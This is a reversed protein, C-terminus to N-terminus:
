IRQTGNESVGSLSGRRRQRWLYLVGGTTVVLVGLLAPAANRRQRRSAAAFREDRIRLNEETPSDSYAAFARSVGVQDVDKVPWSLLLVDLVVVTVVVALRKLM